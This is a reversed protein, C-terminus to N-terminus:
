NPAADSRLQRARALIRDELAAATARGVGSDAWGAGEERTQRFVSVRIGDARLRRDLIYAAVKFREGPAESLSHWDTIVVGGFPDASALPMFSLTDLTARWLYVNVGIGGGGGGREEEDSSPGFIRAGGPGFIREEPGDSAYRPAAKDDGSDVPYDQEWKAGACGALFFAAAAAAAALRACVRLSLVM